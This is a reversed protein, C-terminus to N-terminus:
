TWRCRNVMIAWGCAGGGGLEELREADRRVNLAAALARGLGPVLEGLEARDEEFAVSLLRAPGAAERVGCGGAGLTASAAPTRDPVRQRYHM